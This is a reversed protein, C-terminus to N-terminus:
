LPRRASSMEAAAIERVRRRIWWAVSGILILPLFTMGATSVTFAIRTEESGAVGSFCVACAWADAPALAVVGLLFVAIRTHFRTM